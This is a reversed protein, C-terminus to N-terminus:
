INAKTGGWPGKVRSELKDAYSYFMNGAVNTSTPSFHAFQLSYDNEQLMTKLSKIYMKKVLSIRMQWHKYGTYEEEDSLTDGETNYSIESESMSDVDSDTITITDEESSSTDSYYTVNSNISSADSLTDGECVDDEM